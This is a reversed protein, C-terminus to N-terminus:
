TRLVINMQKLVIIVQQIYAEVETDVLTHDIHQLILALALSKYGAAIHEGQYVDFIFLDALIDGPVEVIAKIVQEAPCNEPMVLALDRRISPFKSITFAKPRKSLALAALTLEFVWPTLKLDFASQCAPHLAGFYGVKQGNVWISLGQGPHLWPPLDQTKFNVNEVDAFAFLGEILGKLDYFDLANNGHWSQPERAGYLLGALMNIETAEYIRGMEFIRVSEVQRRENYQLVKLLSPILSLRMVSLDSSIPNNLVQPSKTETFFAQDKADVFSFTIVERLARACLYDKLENPTNQLEKTGRTQLPFAPIQAKIQEYGHVRVLEEILDEPIHLDFRWCPTKIKIATKNQKLIECGIGTLIKSIEKPEIMTGLLKELHEYTLTIENPKPLNSKHRTECISSASGGCVEIILQSALELAEHVLNPDVGREFRQAGESVLNFQRARGAIVEPKFFAAELLIESSDAAVESAKGGMVGALALAKAEDAIVLIDPKLTADTGNLLELAEHDHAFRVQIQGQIKKLDFAHMPQGILLMVYNLIDVVASVSRVGVHNLRTTIYDPTKATNNINKLIRAAYLPCAEPARLSITIKEKLTSTVKKIKPVHLSVKNKLTLERAIGVISLCDGRNPTLNVDILNDDLALYERIDKGIPADLPLELIGEMTKTLGLEDQACLMGQSLVGRLKAEKIVFDGPLIAGVIAVAVRIGARANIGGCVITLVDKKGINVQCVKLRDADPHKAAETIEGIIVNSFKPAVPTVADVELGLMTLQDCLTATDIKPDVITRLWSETFKM